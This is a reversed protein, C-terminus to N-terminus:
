NQHSPASLKALRLEGRRSLDSNSRTGIFMEGRILWGRQRMMTYPLVMKINRLLETRRAAKLVELLHEKSM